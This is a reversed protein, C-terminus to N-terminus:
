RGKAVKHQPDDRVLKWDAREGPASEGVTLAPAGDPGTTIKAKFDTRTISNRFLKEANADRKEM